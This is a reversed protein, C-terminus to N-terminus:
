RGGSAGPKTGTHIPAVPRPAFGLQARHVDEMDDLIRRILVLRGYDGPMLGQTLGFRRVQARLDGVRRVVIASPHPAVPDVSGPRLDAPDHEHPIHPTHTTIAPTPPM